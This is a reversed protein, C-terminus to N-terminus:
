HLHFPLVRGLQNQNSKKYGTLRDFPLIDRKQLSCTRISRRRNQVSPVRYLAHVVERMRLTPDLRGQSKGYNWNRAGINGSGTPSNKKWNKTVLTGKLMVKVTQIPNRFPGTM